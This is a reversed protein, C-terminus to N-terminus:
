LNMEQNQYSNYNQPKTFEKIEGTQRYHHAMNLLEYSYMDFAPKGRFVESMECFYHLARPPDTKKLEEINETVTLESVDTGQEKLKEAYSKVQFTPTNIIGTSGTSPTLKIRKATSEPSEESELAFAELSTTKKNRNNSPKFTAINCNCIKGDIIPNPNMVATLASQPNIFTVFGYGKSVRSKRNYIVKAEKIVGYPSFHLALTQDTTRLGLGWVFIQPDIQLIKIREANEEKEKILQPLRINIVQKLEEKEDNTHKEIFSLTETTDSIVQNL